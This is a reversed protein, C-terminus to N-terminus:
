LQFYPAQRTICFKYKDGRYYAKKYELPKQDPDYVVSSIVFLPTNKEVNLIQANKERAIDAEFTQEVLAPIYEKQELYLEYSSFPEEKKEKELAIQLLKNGVSLPFYSYYIVLPQDNAIGLLSIFMVPDEIELHLTRNVEFSGPLIKHFLVKTKGQLGKHRLTESFPTIKMLAQVIKTTGNTNLESEVFTGKGQIRYLLGEKMAEYLAQRVTIRSVNYKYCLERESPIQDGPKFNGKKINEKIDEFIKLYLTKEMQKQKIAM